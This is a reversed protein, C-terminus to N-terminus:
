RKHCVSLTRMLMPFCIYLDNDDGNGDLSLLYFFCLLSVQQLMMIVLVVLKIVIIRMRIVVKIQARLELM